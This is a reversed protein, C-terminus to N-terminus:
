RAVKEVLRPDVLPRGRLAHLWRPPIGGAVCATTDTDHGLGIAARVVVGPLDLPDHFEYPVGGANGVLLGRLGGEIRERRTPGM